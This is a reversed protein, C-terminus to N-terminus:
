TGFEMKKTHTPPLEMSRGLIETLKSPKVNGHNTTTITGSRYCRHENVDECEKREKIRHWGLNLSVEKNNNEEFWGTLCVRSSNQATPIPPTLQLFVFLKSNFLSCELELLGKSRYVGPYKESAVNRQPNWDGVMNGTKLNRECRGSGQKALLMTKTLFTM